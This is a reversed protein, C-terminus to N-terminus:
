LGKESNRYLYLYWAMVPKTFETKVDVKGIESFKFFNTLPCIRLFGDIWNLTRFVPEQSKDILFILRTKVNIFSQYTSLHLLINRISFISSLVKLSGLIYSGRDVWPIVFVHLSCIVFAQMKRLFFTHFSDVFVFPFELLINSNGNLEM